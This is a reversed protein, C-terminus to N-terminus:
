AMMVQRAERPPGSGTPPGSARPLRLMWAPHIMTVVTM